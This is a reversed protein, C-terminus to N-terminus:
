APTRTFRLTSTVTTLGRLMGLQNWGLGFQDRDVTFEATLTVGDASSETLTATASQPRSVGRVTLEGSIAVTDDQRLAADHVAFVVTPHREADFFDPGRLHTDRKTNKTDLSAAGLTVTGSAGGDPRVEGQGTVDGFVGKVTVLGWMTRHKIAVTSRATDLQWLGTKVAVTM